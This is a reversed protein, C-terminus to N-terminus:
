EEQKKGGFVGQLDKVLVKGHDPHKPLTDIFYVAKPVQFGSLYERCHKRIEEATAVHGENLVVSATVAEKWREHLLGIVAAEDM